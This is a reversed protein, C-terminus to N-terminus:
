LGEKVMTEAVLASLAVRDGSNCETVMATVVERVTRAQKSARREPVVVAAGRARPMVRVHADAKHLAAVLTEIRVDDADAPPQVRVIAGDADWESDYRDTWVPHNPAITLLRRAKRPVAVVAFRNAAPKPEPTTRRARAM